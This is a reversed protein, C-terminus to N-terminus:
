AERLMRIFKRRDEAVQSDGRLHKGSWYAVGQFSNEPHPSEPAAAEHWVAITEAMAMRMSQLDTLTPAVDRQPRKGHYCALAMVFQKQPMQLWWSEYARRQQPGPFTHASHSWHQTTSPKWFSYAMPMIYDCIETLPQVTPHLKDYGVVGVDRDGRCLKIHKVAALVSLGSEEHWTVEPNLLHSSVDVQDMMPNLTDFSQEIFSKNRVAWTMFQPKMNYNRILEAAKLWKSKSGTIQFKKRNKSIGLIVDSFGCSAYLRIHDVTPLSYDAFIWLRM